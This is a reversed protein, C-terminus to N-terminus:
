PTAGSILQEALAQAQQVAPWMFPQAIEQYLAYEAACAVVATIGDSDPLGVEPAAERQVTGATPSRYTGSKPNTAYDSEGDPLVTYISNRMFGTDIQNNNTVNIKAEVAIQLVVAALGDATLGDIHIMAERGHWELDHAM